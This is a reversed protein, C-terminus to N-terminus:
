QLGNIQLARVREEFSSEAVPLVVQQLLEDLEPKHKVAKNTKMDFHVLHIWIFSKLETRKADYMRVEVFLHKDKAGILQSEMLVHETTVAPRIYSIQNSVVVWGVGETKAIHYPNLGYNDILHDERANMFYELYKANNLHDFPDSDQFRVV